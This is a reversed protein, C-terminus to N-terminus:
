NTRKYLERQIIYRQIENTGGGITMLRADRVFREIPYDKTYGIGGLIQLASNCVSVATETSYLKAMSSEKTARLGKDIMRASNLTLLRSCEIQTAMDAIKFSIAEFDKIPRHFQVREKSYKLAIEFAARAYGLAEGAIATREVDLEDMLVKFGGNLPGLLNEKPVKLDKFKLHSVRAGRMGMLEYDREVSFGPSDTEVIFASMGKHPHVNKDTIAFVCIFDAQSGNTIFRKEGNLIFESNKLKARTKMRATDSGVEPETIGLAGIKTGKIIPTLYKRKQEETGFRNVPMGFLTLSALRTMDIAPSVASIEEALLIEYVVGRETGGYKKPHLVGLLGHRGMIEIIHRPFINESEIKEVEKIIFDSVFQKATKRFEKEDDSLFIDM